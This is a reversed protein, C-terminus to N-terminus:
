RDYRRVVHDPVLDVTYLTHCRDLLQPFAHAGALIAVPAGFWVATTPRHAVFVAPGDSSVDSYVMDLGSPTLNPAYTGGIAHVDGVPQWRNDVAEYEQVEPRDFRLRVLVRRPGFEAASPSGALTGTPVIGDSTWRAADGRVAAQLLPPEVQATVFMADGEPALALALPMYVTADIATPEGGPLAKEYITGAFAYVMRDRDWSVSFMDAVALDTPAASSFSEDACPRPDSGVGLVLNCGGCLVLGLAHVALV